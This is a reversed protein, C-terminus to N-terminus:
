FIFITLIAAVSAFIDPSETGLIPTIAFFVEYVVNGM